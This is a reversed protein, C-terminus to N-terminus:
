SKISKQFRTYAYLRKLVESLSCEHLQNTILFLEQHQRDIEPIGLGYKEDSWQVFM